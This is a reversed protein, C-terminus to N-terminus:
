QKSMAGLSVYLSLSLCFLLCCLPHCLFERQKEVKDITLQSPEQEMETKPKLGPAANASGMSTAASLKAGATQRLPGDGNGAAAILLLRWPM